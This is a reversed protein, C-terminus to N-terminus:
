KSKQEPKYKSSKKQYTKRATYHIKVQAKWFNIPDPSHTQSNLHSMLAKFINGRDVLPFRQVYLIIPKLFAKSTLLFLRIVQIVSFARKIDVPLWLKKKATELTGM